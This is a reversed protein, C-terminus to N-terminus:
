CAATSSLIGSGRTGGVYAHEAVVDANGDGECERLMSVELVFLLVSMLTVSVVAYVM